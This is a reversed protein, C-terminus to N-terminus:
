SGVQASFDLKITPALPDNSSITIWANVLTNNMQYGTPDFNVRVQTEGGPPVTKDSVLAATCGCSSQVAGIELPKKGINKITLNRTITATNPIKGFNLTYDSAALEPVALRPADGIPTEKESVPKRTASSPQPAVMLQTVSPDVSGAPMEITQGTQALPKATPAAGRQGIAAGVLVFAVFAVIGMVGYLLKPGVVLEFSSGTKRIGESRRLQRNM